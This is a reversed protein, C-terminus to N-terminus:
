SFVENMEDKWRLMLQKWVLDNQEEINLNKNDLVINFYDLFENKPFWISGESYGSSASLKEVHDLATESEHLDNIPNRLLRIVKGGLGQIEQLENIFRVDSVLVICDNGHDFCYKLVKSHWSNVWCDRYLARCIDTGFWQLVERITKGCPLVMRKNEDLSLAEVTLGWHIPVFLELVMEKLSDAFNREYIDVGEERLKKSLFNKVTDKGSQQKGSLGIIKM